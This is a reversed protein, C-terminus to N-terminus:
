VHSFVFTLLLHLLTVCAYTSPFSPLLFSTSLADQPTEWCSLGTSAYSLLSGPEESGYSCGKPFHFTKLTVKSTSDLSPAPGLSSTGSLQFSYGGQRPGLSTKPNIKAKQKKQKRSM